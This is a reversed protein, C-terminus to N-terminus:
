EVGGREVQTASNDNGASESDQPMNRQTEKRIEDETIPRTGYITWTTFAVGIGWGLIPWIPWFYGAGSVAWIAILMTNVTLYIAVHSRFGRKIKLRDIATERAVESDNVDSGQPLLEQHLNEAQGVAAPLAWPGM